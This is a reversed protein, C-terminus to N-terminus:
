SKKKKKVIRMHQFNGPWLDFECWLLLRLRQLSLVPDKVAQAVPSIWRKRVKKKRKQSCRCCISTWLGPVSNSGCSCGVGCSQCNRSRIGRCWLQFKMCSSHTEGWGQWIKTDDSQRKLRLREQLHLATRHKRLNQIQRNPMWSDCPWVLLWFQKCRGKWGVKTLM